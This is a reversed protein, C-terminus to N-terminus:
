NSNIRKNLVIAFVLNPVWCLWAVIKYAVYFDGIIAILLPLWLRLMVAAFCLAYSITMMKSHAAINKKRISIYASISSVFWLIALIMFGLESIIGGTAFLAIYAGSIAGIIVSILYIKGLNRHLNLKKKRLNSNFQPWGSLLAIGSFVIHLYFAVNWNLTLLLESPKTSLLGFNRDIAFYLAPYLGIAVALFVFIYWTTKKM